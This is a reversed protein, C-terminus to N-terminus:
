FGKRHLRSVTIHGQNQGVLFDIKNIILIYKGRGNMGSGLQKVIKCIRIKKENKM